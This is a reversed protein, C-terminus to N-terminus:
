ILHLLLIAVVVAVVAVLVVVAIVTAVVTAVVTVLFLLVVCVESSGAQWCKFFMRISPHFVQPHTVISPPCTIFFITVALMLSDTTLTEKEM